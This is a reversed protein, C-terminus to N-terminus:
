PQEFADSSDTADCKDADARREAKTHPTWQARIAQSREAIEVPTPEYAQARSKTPM